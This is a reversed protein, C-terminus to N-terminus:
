VDFQYVCVRQYAHMCPPCTFFAPVAAPCSFLQVSIRKWTSRTSDLRALRMMTWPYLQVNRYPRPRPISEIERNLPFLHIVDISHEIFSDFSVISFLHNRELSIWWRRAFHQIGLLTTPFRTTSEGSNHFPIRTYIYQLVKPIKFGNRITYIYLNMRIRIRTYTSTYSVKTM